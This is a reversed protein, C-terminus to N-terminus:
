SGCNQLGYEQALTSAEPPETAELVASPEDRLQAILDELASLLEDVQEADEEPPNLERIQALQDEYNPAVVDTLFAEQEEVPPEEELEGFQEDATATIEEDGAACIEDAQTIFEEKTLAEGEDDGGCGAAILALAALLAALIM